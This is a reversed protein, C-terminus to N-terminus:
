SGNDQAAQAGQQRRPFLSGSLCELDPYKSPVLPDDSWVQRIVAIDRMVATPAQDGPNRPRFVAKPFAPPIRRVQSFSRKGDSRDSMQSPRSITPRIVARPFSTPRRADAAFAREGGPRDSMQLPRSITPRIVARPLVPRNDRPQLSLGSEAWEARAASPCGGFGHDAAVRVLWVPPPVGTLTGAAGRVM